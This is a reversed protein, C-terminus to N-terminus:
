SLRAGEFDKRDGNNSRSILTSKPIIRESWSHGACSRIEARDVAPAVSDSNLMLGSFELCNENWSKVFKGRPHAISLYCLLKLYM